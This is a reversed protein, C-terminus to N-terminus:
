GALNRLRQQLAEGKEALLASREALVSGATEEECMQIVALPESVLSHIGNDGDIECEAERTQPEAQIDQLSEADRDDNEAVPNVRQPSGNQARCENINPIDVDASPRFSDDSSRVNKLNDEPTVIGSGQIAFQADTIAETVVTLNSEPLISRESAIIETDKVSSSLTDNLQHDHENSHKDLADEKQLTEVVLVSERELATMQNILDESRDVTVKELSTPMKWTTEGTQLNWYYYEGSDEHLVTQWEKQAAEDKVSIDWKQEDGNQEVKVNAQHLIENSLVDNPNEQTGAYLLTLIISFWMCRRNANM